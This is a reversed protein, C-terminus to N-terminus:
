ITGADSTVALMEADISMGYLTAYENGRKFEHLLQGNQIQYVRLINGKESATVILNNFCKM